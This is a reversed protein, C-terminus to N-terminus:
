NHLMGALFAEDPNHKTQAKAIVYSAAAVKTSVEWLSKIRPALAGLDKTHFVQQMAVSMASNRVMAFGLKFIATRLETVVVGGRQLLASNAMKLLRGALVQDTMAMRALRDPTVNPDELEKRIRVVSDPFSPLVLDGRNLEKALQELFAFAAAQVSAPDATASMRHEQCLCPDRTRVRRGTMPPTSRLKLGASARRGETLMAGNEGPPCTMFLFADPAASATAKDSAAVAAASVSAESSCTSGCRM